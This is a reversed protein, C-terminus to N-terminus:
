AAKEEDATPEAHHLMEAVAARVLQEYSSGEGYKEAIAEYTEDPEGTHCGLTILTRGDEIRAWGYR